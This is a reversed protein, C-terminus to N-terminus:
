RNKIRTGTATCPTNQFSMSAFGRRHLVVLSLFIAKEKVRERRYSGWSEQFKGFTWYNYGKGKIPFQKGALWDLCLAASPAILASLARFWLLRQSHLRKRKATKDNIDINKDQILCCSKATTMKYLFNAITEGAHALALFTKEKKLMDKGPQTGLFYINIQDWAYFEPGFSHPLIVRDLISKRVM